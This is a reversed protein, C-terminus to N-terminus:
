RPSRIDWEGLSDETAELLMDVVVGIFEAVSQEIEIHTTNRTTTTITTRAPTSLDRDPQQNM